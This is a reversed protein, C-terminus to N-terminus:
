SIVPTFLNHQGDNTSIKIEYSERLIVILNDIMKISYNFTGFLKMHNYKKERSGAFNLNNLFAVKCTNNIFNRWRILINGFILLYLLYKNIYIM